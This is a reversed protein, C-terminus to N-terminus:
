VKEKKYWNIFSEAGGKFTKITPDTAVRWRGTSPYFDVKPKGVERFLVAGGSSVTFKLGSKNLAEMNQVQWNAHREKRLEDLIKFGEAMDGM